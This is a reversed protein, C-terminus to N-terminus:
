MSSRMAAVEGAAIPDAENGFNTRVWTLVDAIQQDTLYDMKPMENNYHEGKVVIPGSQGELIIRILREKDGNVTETGDLPPYMGPSGTGDAQHCSRCFMNYVMKGPETVVPQQAKQAVPATETKKKGEGCSYLVFCALIMKALLFGKINNSGLPMKLEKM